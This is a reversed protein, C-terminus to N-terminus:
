LGLRWSPTSPILHVGEKSYHITFRDTLSVDVVKGNYKKRWTGIIGDAKITEKVQNMGTKPDYNVHVTGTGAYKDVLGQVDVHIDFVSKTTSKGPKAIHGAQKKSIVLKPQYTSRVFAQAEDETMRQGLERKKLAAKLRDDDSNGGTIVKSPKGPPKKGGGGSSALAKKRDKALRSMRDWQTKNRGNSNKPWSAEIRNAVAVLEDVSNAETLATMAAEFDADSLMAGRYQNAKMPLRSPVEGNRRRVRRREAEAARNKRFTPSGAERYRQVISASDYPIADGTDPDRAVLEGRRRYVLAITCNCYAHYLDDQSGHGVGGGASEQTQYLNDQAGAAVCFDCADPGPIRVYGECVPDMRCNLEITNRGQQKVYKDVPAAIAKRFNDKNAESAM